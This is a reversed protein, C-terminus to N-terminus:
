SLTLMCTPIVVFNLCNILIAHTAQRDRMTAVPRHGNPSATM